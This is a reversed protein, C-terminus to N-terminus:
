MATRRLDKVELQLTTEGNWTNEQLNYVIDVKDGDHLAGAWEAQRFAIAPWTVRGDSVNFRLHGNRLPKIYRVPVGNSQFVPAPNGMGFPAMRKIWGLSEWTAQSLPIVSDVRIAAELTQGELLRRAAAVLREQLLILRDTRVTFGAAQAHGGHRELLDKCEDLALAINFEPISRCSGRSTAEGLEVAVAPRYFQEALRGAVLGVIGARYAASSVFILPSRQVQEAAESSAASLAAELLTQRELNLENLRRALPAAQEASPSLLLDYSTMATDLRGAANLRPGLAFGLSASDVQDPKIHAVDMLAKLGPRPSARMRDLGLRVLSRNEGRLPAVDVVTGLAVLDLDEVASHPGSANGQLACALLYAVGAGALDPFPYASDPRHPNLIAVAPPLLDPVSHHDTVIVDMGLSRAHAIESVSSTGCDATILLTVGEEALRTIAGKNLGYGEDVRHPIYVRPRAGQGELARMIVAASCIGDVDFDGFVAIGEGHSIARRIREIAVHMDPLDFPDHLGGDPDSSLFRRIEAATSLGRNYLVQM